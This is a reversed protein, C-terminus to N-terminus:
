EVPRGEVSMLFQAEEAYSKLRRERLGPDNEATISFLYQLMAEGRSETKAWDFGPHGAMPPYLTLKALLYRIFGDLTDLGLKQLGACLHTGETATGGSGEWFIPNWGPVGRIRAALGIIGQDLVVVLDPHRGLGGSDRLLEIYNSFLTEISTAGTFAFSIGMTQNIEPMGKPVRSKALAKVSAIKAFCDALEAKDLKSKVEIVAAVNNSPIIAASESARYMPCNLADYIVVDMQRSIADRSDIVFGSTIGFRKPIHGELFDRVIVEAERGREGSHPVLALSDFDARIKAAAQAFLAKRTVGEAM